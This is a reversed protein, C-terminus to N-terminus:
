NGLTLPPFHTDKKSSIGTTTCSALSFPILPHRQVLFLCARLKPLRNHICLQLSHLAGLLFECLWLPRTKFFALHKLLCGGTGALVAGFVDPSRM